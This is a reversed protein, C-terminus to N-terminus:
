MIKAKSFILDVLDVIDSRSHSFMAQSKRCLASFIAAFAINITYVLLFISSFIYSIFFFFFSFPIESTILIHFLDAKISAMFYEALTLEIPQM